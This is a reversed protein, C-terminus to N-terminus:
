DDNDDDDESADEAADDANAVVLTESPDEIVQVAEAAGSGDIKSVQNDEIAYIDVIGDDIAALDDGTLGEPRAAETIIRSSGDEFRALYRKM